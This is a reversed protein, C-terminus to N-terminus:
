RCGTAATHLNVGHSLNGDIAHRKQKKKDLYACLANNLSILFLAFIVPFRKLDVINKM